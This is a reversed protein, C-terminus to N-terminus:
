VGDGHQIDIDVYLIRQYYILLQLIALVIYNVYCFVIPEYKKAHHLGGMWNVAIDTSGSVLKRAAEISAGSYIQSFDWMGDFIPCDDGINFEAFCSAMTDQNEPTVRKLFEIYDQAHFERIEEETARRPEFVDMYKHLGYNLVLHNTLTLRHPKMPHQKGYHFNGAQERMYYSVRPRYHQQQQSEADGDQSAFDLGMGSANGSSMSTSFTGSPYTITEKRRGM